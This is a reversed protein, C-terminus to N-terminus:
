RTAARRLRDRVALGLGAAEPPVVWLEDVGLRDAERLRGYLVQAFHDAPGAPELEIVGPHLDDLVAPALLAVRRGAEASRAAGVSAEHPDDVVVVLASPAYHSALSGPAPSSAADTSGAWVELTRSLLRELEEVPVGGPRRVVPEDGSLDVITSEIGVVCPGGDLVVDVAPGLEARVHAATTPSVRGFRNASPAAVGRGFAQLLALAVPHGPVRLGVTSRGGTVVDSVSPARPLLLTLPGPWCAAALVRAEEPVASAWVDLEGESSIHVIVPHTAPRGKAEFIRRVAAPDAADAGLGYVTETPFAVLRGARLADVGARLDDGPVAGTM